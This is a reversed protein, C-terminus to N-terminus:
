SGAITITRHIRGALAVVDRDDTCAIIGAHAQSQRHLRIFDRRNFTLVGRGEATADALVKPDDSGRRGAEQVTRVDHGLGRLAAVVGADFNEDAYLLAM